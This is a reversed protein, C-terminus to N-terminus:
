GRTELNKNDNYLVQQYICEIKKVVIAATYNMEAKKKNRIQMEALLQRDEILKKVSYFFIKPEKSNHLFGNVGDEVIEPIAAVPTSVIALGAGMAELIVIPCGEGYYTPFIFIDSVRLIEDKEKGTIYGTFDMHNELGYKNRYRKLGKYEPGDGAFILKFNRYGNNLLLRGLEAAIYVGKSKVFRSMFLLNIEKSTIHYDRKELTKNGQYMTSISKVKTSSIGIREMQQKYQSCLVLIFNLKDYIKKFLKNLIPNNIIKEVLHNNWGHFIGISKTPYFNYIILLFLSDRLLSRIHFSPNIHVIDPKFKKLIIMFKIFQCLIIFPLFINKLSNSSKGQIFHSIKFEKKNINEVILKVFNVVGGTHNFDKSLILIKVM